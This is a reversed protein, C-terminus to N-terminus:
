LTYSVMHCMGLFEVWEVAANNLFMKICIVRVVTIIVM